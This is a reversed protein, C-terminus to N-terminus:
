DEDRISGAAAVLEDLADPFTEALSWLDPVLETCAILGVDLKNERSIVTVNLGAGHFVPGLPYMGTIRSGLFYLPVPPGPVNSVVLNHITPHRDALGFTAYLRMAAGFTAPGAFQAWDQLLNAGLAENHEKSVANSDAIAKLRQAPDEIDTRLENFMGTVKNTGPRDSKDHVSVPVMAVLSAEPLEGKDELYMRLASAVMALVVDNVKVGFAGKVAKVRDLDLQAWAMSRHGTITGNFPTRPATFPAPMAAGRQARTVWAPLLPISNGLARVLKVPRTAMEALGGIAIDVVSGDGTSEITEESDTPPAQPELSCLQTIMDAGSVGDVSAHHMKILVAIRGDALGEIVWMDWLPKNRDLQQGAIHSCLRALETADGPEPVAIRHCHREIDFDDDDVWVPHGVNFLSDKVKRRFKPLRPIRAALESQLKEFTYGDPMTSPDLEILGCIHLLQTSTELYLFSADLGSLREM